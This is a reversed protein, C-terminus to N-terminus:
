VPAAYLSLPAAAGPLPDSHIDRSSDTLPVVQRVPSAPQVAHTCAAVPACQRAQAVAAAPAQANSGHGSQQESTREPHPPVACVGLSPAAVNADTAIQPPTVRAEPVGSGARVAAVSSSLRAQVFPSLAHPVVAHQHSAPRACLAGCAHAGRVDEGHQAAAAYQVAGQLPSDDGACVAGGAGGAAHPQV